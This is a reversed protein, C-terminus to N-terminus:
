VLAKILWSMCVIYKGFRLVTTEAIFTSTIPVVATSGGFLVM